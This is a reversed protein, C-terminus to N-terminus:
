FSSTGRKEVVAEYIRQEFRNKSNKLTHPDIYAIERGDTALSLDYTDIAVDYLLWMYWTDRGRAYLSFVSRLEASMMSSSGIEERLERKLAEYPDEGYDIGGGPLVWEDFHEKVLLIQGSANRIVAKVSVRYTANM